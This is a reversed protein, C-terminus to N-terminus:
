RLFVVSALNSPQFVKVGSNVCMKSAKTPSSTPCRFATCSMSCAMATSQKGARCGWKTRCRTVIDNYVHLLVLMISGFHSVGPDGASSLFFFLLNPLGPVLCSKGLLQM